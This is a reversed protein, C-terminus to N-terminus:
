RQTAPQDAREDRHQRHLHEEWREQHLRRRRRGEPAPQDDAVGVHGAEAQAAEAPHSRARHGDGADGPRHCRREQIPVSRRVRGVRCDVGRHAKPPGRDGPRVDADAVVVVPSEGVALGVPGVHGGDDRGAAIAAIREGIEALEASIGEDRLDVARRQDHEEPIRGARRPAIHVEDVAVIRVDRIGVVAVSPVRDNGPDGIRRSGRRQRKMHGVALGGRSAEELSRQARVGRLERGSAADEGPVRRREAGAPDAVALQPVDLAEADRECGAQVVQVDGQGDFGQTIVEREDDRHDADRVDGRDGADCVARIEILRERRDLQVAARGQQRRRGRCRIPAVEEGADRRVRDVGDTIPAGDDAFHAGDGEGARDRDRGAWGSIAPGGRGCHDGVM